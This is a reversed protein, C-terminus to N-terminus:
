ASSSSALPARLRTDIFLRLACQLLPGAAGALVSVNSVLALQLKKM